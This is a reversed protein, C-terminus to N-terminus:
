ELGARRLGEFLRDVYEADTNRRLGQEFGALPPLPQQAQAEVVRRKARELGDSLAPASVSHFM